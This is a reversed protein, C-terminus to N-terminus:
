LVKHQVQVYLIKEHAVLATGTPTLGVAAKAIGISYLDHREVSHHEHQVQVSYLSCTSKQRIQVYRDVHTHAAGTHTQRCSNQAAGPCTQLQMDVLAQATNTGIWSSPHIQRCSGTCYMYSDSSLLKQPTGPRRLRCSGTSCRHTHQNIRSYGVQLSRLKYM